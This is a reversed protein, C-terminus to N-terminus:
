GARLAARPRQPAAPVAGVRDAGARGHDHRRRPPTGPRRPRGPRAPRRRRRRARGPDRRRGAAVLHDVDLREAEEDAGALRHHEARVLRELRAREKELDETPEGEVRAQPSGGPRTACRPWRSSSRARRGAHGADARARHEAVAREVAAPRAARDAAHRLALAALETGHGTALARLETSGLLRRHDDLADLGRGCARLVGGRDGARERECAAPWGAAPGCWTPARPQPVVGGPRAAAPRAATPSGRRGRDARGPGRGGARRRPRAAVTARGRRGTAPEPRRPARQARVAVLRARTEYRVDGHGRFARPALPRWAADAGTWTAATWGRAHRAWLQLLARDVPQM